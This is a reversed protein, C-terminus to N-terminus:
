PAVMMPDTQMNGAVDDSDISPQSLPDFMNRLAQEEPARHTRALRVVRGVSSM